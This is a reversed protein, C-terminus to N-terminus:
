SPKDQTRNRRPRQTSTQQGRLQALEQEALARAQREVELQRQLEDVRRKEDDARRKEDDARRIAAQLQRRAEQLELLLDAPLPVLEGRFWYRVWGDLIAVEVELEPIAYRGQANPKVSVYKKSNRRYLTLEQNDLFFMLYYPVKLEREYKLLNDEYDKRKNGKSVYEMVWFPGTPQFPLDCSGNAKILEPWVIVVNDPVVRHIRQQRGHPYQLLLENFL